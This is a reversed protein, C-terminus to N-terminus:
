RVVWHAVQSELGWYIIAVATLDFAAHAVMLLALSRTAAYIAGFVLGSFVAQEAGWRGQGSYHALGFLLATVLVTAVAARTGRGWLKGLREFFYGRFLTEEGFGAGVTMTYVAGPLAGPNGALYHYAHNIPDAGLLPMVVAKMALKFGVGLVIGGSVTAAWSRPRVFGLDPWPTHSARAWILVLLASLPLFLSNGLVIVIFSLVGVVGFGRLAQALEDDHPTAPATAGDSPGLEDGPATTM